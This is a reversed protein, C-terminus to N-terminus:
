FELKKPIEWTFTPELKPDRGFHGYAATQKYIPRLLNLDKIIRGPRLDLLM